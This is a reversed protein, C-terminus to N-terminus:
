VVREPSSALMPPTTPRVRVNSAVGYSGCAHSSWQLHPTRAPTSVVAELSQVRYTIVGLASMILTAIVAAIVGALSGVVAM